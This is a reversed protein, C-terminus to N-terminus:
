VRPLVFLSDVNYVRTIVDTLLELDYKVKGEYFHVCRVNGDIPVCEKGIQMIIRDNIQHQSPLLIVKHAAALNFGVGSYDTYVYMNHLDESLSFRTIQGRMGHENTVLDGISFSSDFEKHLLREVTHPTFNKDAFSIVNFTYMINRFQKALEQKLGCTLYFIWWVRGKM